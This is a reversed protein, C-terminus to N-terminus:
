DTNKSHVNTNNFHDTADFNTSFKNNKAEGFYDFDDGKANQYYINTIEENTLFLKNPKTM